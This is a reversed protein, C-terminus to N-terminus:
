SAISRQRRLTYQNDPKSLGYHDRLTQGTYETRFLGRRQLLPVVHEVFEELGSPLLPPMINFGDAAGAEFWEQMTDAIQEPTGTFTRHGRGGGLRVLLQRVTLSERRALETVVTFRSKMGQVDDVHGVAPLPKDLDAETLPVGILGSLQRLGYEPVQLRALEREKDLAEAETGGIVPVIGPLIKVSSADRGLTTVQQKLDAYFAQGEELTQQATFVAEAYRAAFARGDESSGAQVLLPHRQPSPPVNLPGQVRFYKGEHEIAHIQAPDAYVGSHKDAVLFEDEWSDWLKICVEVFESAREYRGRHDPTDPFGFNQAPGAGATTVINWGARGGSLHDISAFSRALNYPEAYTTSATAVLGIRQTVMAMAPLLVTPDLRGVPRYRIDGQLAPSDGFFISDFLGREAIRALQLYHGIDWTGLLASEPFRWASEHHGITMLFANLHLQRAM